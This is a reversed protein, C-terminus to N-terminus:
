PTLSANLESNEQLRASFETNIQWFIFMLKLIPNKSNECSKYNERIKNVEDARM